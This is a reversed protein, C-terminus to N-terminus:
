PPDTTMTKSVESEISDFLDKHSSLIRLREDKDVWERWVYIVLVLVPVTSIGLLTALLNLPLGSGIINGTGAFVIIALGISLAFSLVSVSLSLIPDDTREKSKSHGPEKVERPEVM